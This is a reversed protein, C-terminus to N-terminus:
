KRDTWADNTPPIRAGKSIAGIHESAKGRAQEITMGQNGDLYHGLLIREPKGQIWRYLIFTKTGRDTVALALSRTNTDYHYSRKGPDAPPLSDLAKVTFNLTKKSRTKAAM